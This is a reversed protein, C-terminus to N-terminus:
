SSQSSLDPRLRVFVPERLTGKSTLSAYQVECLLQPELWVTEADDLPKEEVPRESEKVKKLETLINKLLRDDFGTGVKGLYHIKGGDREGIHLAGFTDSRAGKGRTYGLIVCDMTQRTKVKIWQSTRKGPFYRSTRDKAMIGELGMTAAAEFLPGGEDVAESVRYPTGKKLTDVMWERRRELPENVLPRGDLYLLDFVYCVAPNRGQARKIGSESSQQIRNIVKKFNPRGDEELCVIETDFLAGSVRFAQEPVLLEPFCATIDRQNRSRITIEGEDVAIMARIGDWKVEYLYEDSEPVDKQSAGLMPEIPDSLWDVQPTDVRELLWDKGKTKYTRYEANMEKSQLRFYFGDKKEKTIEYKGQAFVWMDGAGYEGKPIAGEFTLYELPHDEVHVALRKIGPRQPLGRPVAWSKLTGEMELRLDYHLRSAHHRHVVFANGKGDAIDPRPEPTKDFTRKSEYSELQEPTKRTRADPLSKKVRKPKRETHLEAAYAGIAEWADGEALVQDLVTHINFALPDTVDELQDWGLPMSVPAGEAGRVSYPSVITQYQRNRYIDVLVRGKRSEKKIHLTTTGPRKAVFPKAVSQAAAFVQKFDYVPEVPVVVHIGKRGTTKAFPHYGFSELHERLELAIGVVDTYPYGEPPDLDWVIYDPHEFRPKRYHTQHLELVALNALWVLTAEETALVYDIKKSDGLSVSEVWDPAWNPRNKQFFTEAGVGDPYRVLTLPRGKVHALITPAIKLYYQILEAKLIQDAPFLVKELNSLEVKRKGIQVMQSTRAM